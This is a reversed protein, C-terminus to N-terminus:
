IYKNLFTFALQYTWTFNEVFSLIRKHIQIIVSNITFFNVFNIAKYVLMLQSVMLRQSHVVREQNRQQRWLRSRLM